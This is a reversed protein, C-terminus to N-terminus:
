RLKERGAVFVRGYGDRDLTFREKMAQGKGAKGYEVDITLLFPASVISLVKFLPENRSRLFCYLPLEPRDANWLWNALPFEPVESLATFIDRVLREGHQRTLRNAIRRNRLMEIWAALSNDHAEVMEEIIFEAHHRMAERFEDRSLEGLDLM